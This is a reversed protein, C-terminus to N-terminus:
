QSPLALNRKPTTRGVYPFGWKKAPKGQNGQSLRFHYERHSGDIARITKKMNSKPKNSQAIQKAQREGQKEDWLGGGCLSLALTDHPPVTGRRNRRM